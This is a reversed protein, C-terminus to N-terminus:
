VKYEHCTEPPWDNANLACYPSQACTNVGGGGESCPPYASFCCRQAAALVLRPPVAGCGHPLDVTEGRAVRARLEPPWLQGFRKHGHVFIDSPFTCTQPTPPPPSPPLTPPHPHALTPTHPTRANRHGRRWEARTCAGSM